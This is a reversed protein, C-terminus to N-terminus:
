RGHTGYDIMVGGQSDDLLWSVVQERITQRDFDVRSGAENVLIKLRLMEAVIEGLRYSLHLERLLRFEELGSLSGPEFYGVRKQPITEGDSILRLERINLLDADSYVLTVSHAAYWEQNKDLWDPSRKGIAAHRPEQTSM